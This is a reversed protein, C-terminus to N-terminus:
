FINNKSVYLTGGNNDDLKVIQYHFGNEKLRNLILDLDNNQNHHFEIIMNEIKMLNRYTITDFMMYEDGEIDVKLLDIRDINKEKILNNITIGEVSIKDYGDISNPLHKKCKELDRCSVTTNVRNVFIDVMSNDDSIAKNIIFVNDNDKFMKEMNDCCSKVAEVAYIDEAGRLLMLYTFLGQNAGLDVVTEIGLGIKNLFDDYTKNIFFDRWLFYLCDFPTIGLPIVADVNVPEKKTPIIKNFLFNDDMDYFSIDFGNIYPDKEFDFAGKPIPNIYYEINKNMNTKSWHFATKSYSDMVSIKGQFDEISKFYINNTEPDFKITFNDEISSSKIKNDTFVGYINLDNINNLNVNYNKVSIIQNNVSDIFKATISYNDGDNLTIKKMYYTRDKIYHTSREIFDGNKYEFEIRRNDTINSSNFWVIFSRKDNKVPLLTLYEVGSFLNIKSNKFLEDENTDAILLDDEYDILKKYFYNELFNNVGLQSCEKNYEEPTRPNSFTKEFFELNTIFFVSKLLTMDGEKFRMFYGNKEYKRLRDCIDDIKSLDAESFIFDYSISILNKYGMKYAFTTANKINNLVTLSQNLQYKQDIKDLYIEVKGEPIMSWYYNYLTHNILPNYSDYLYYDAMAQLEKDVPYHSALIIKKGNNKLSNLCQKTINEKIKTDPYTMVLYIDEDIFNSSSIKREVVPQIERHIEKYEKRDEVVAEIKMLILDKSFLFLDDTNNYIIEYGYPNRNDLKIWNNFEKSFQTEKQDFVVDGSKINKIKINFVPEGDGKYSLYIKDDTKDYSVIFLEPDIEKVERENEKERIENLMKEIDDISKKERVNDLRMHKTFLFKDMYYIDFYFDNHKSTEYLEIWISGWPSLTTTTDFVNKNEDMHVVVRINNIDKQYFDSLCLHFRNDNKNYEIVVDNPSKDNVFNNIDKLLFHQIKEGQITSIGEIQTTLRPAIGKTKSSFMDNFMLDSVDWLTTSYARNIYNRAFKPFMISQIGIIKNTIYMWDVDDIKREVSSVTEGTRLNRDDGFSMYYIREKLIYDCAKYIKEAFEEVPVNLICDSEFVMLFDIDDTFESLIANKFSTYNGYHPGRLSYAGIRGVDQPRACNEKPPDQTYRKNIHQVYDIGYDKLKEINKISESKRDDEELLLHVARIKYKVNKNNWPVNKREFLFDRILRNDIDPDGKLYHITEEIDYKRNYVDLPFLFQPIQHQLAEKIVLPNLEKNWRFGMSTFLFLDCADLFDDVDDREGWLVCNNPKNKMLPEWYTKFNDAQNGIFHFKIPQDVLKRAIEFAYAQNKRPTFLGVNVVHKFKPDLGLKRMKELKVEQSVKNKEVPYEIVETPIGFKNFKYCNYQSVFLFKDPYFTKDDTNFDSSHTTEFIKYKRDKKYLETALDYSMFLEPMEEMHIYDPQIKEIIDLLEFKDKGLTFFHNSKLLKKIRNKQIIFHDSINDYEVVYVDIDNKILEIRKCAVQPMGGTSCHSLIM